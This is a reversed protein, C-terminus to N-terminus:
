EIREMKSGPWNGQITMVPSVSIKPMKPANYKGGFVPTEGDSDTDTSLSYGQIKCLAKDAAEASSAKVYVTACIMVERSYVNM